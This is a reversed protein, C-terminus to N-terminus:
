CSLYFILKINLKSTSAHIISPVNRVIKYRKQDKKELISIDITPRVVAAGRTAAERQEEDDSM